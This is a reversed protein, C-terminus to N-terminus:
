YSNLYLMRTIFTKRLFSDRDAPIVRNHARPRLDHGTTKIPPLLKHLVHQPNNLLSAFLASDAAECIESFTPHDSPLLGQKKVKKLVSQLQLQCEADLLGWWAQSAYTLRALLTACTVQWLSPGNLGQAKLTKIAYASQACQNKLNGVHEHFTLDESFTVGLINMTDVRNIGPLVEPNFRTGRPKRVIMEKTKSVNLSLNNSKAWNSIHVLESQITKANDSPVILYSDDAYKNLFNESDVPHLDSADLVFAVPGLGSGQVISANISRMGSVVGNFKTCHERNELYKLLWNHIADDIPLSACKELLTSHKVTDFAKSFDLAILHLYTYKQLLTAM